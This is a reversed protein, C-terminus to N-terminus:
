DLKETMSPDWVIRLNKEKVMRCLNRSIEMYDAEKKLSNRFDFRGTVPNKLYPLGLLEELLKEGEPSAKMCRIDIMQAEQRLVARHMYGSYEKHLGQYLSTGDESYIGGTIRNHTDLLRGGVLAVDTRNEFLDPEYEIQYFGLHRSHSVTGKFGRARLFDEVARKGAEYAYRKSEPNEATSAEHCRWHYLVKPINAIPLTKAQGPRKDKGMMTSVARLVLDFDQAGDCVSRFQLEQMLQRKMVCFHCIYNNSLILDLNFKPKRHPEFYVTADANCKDEDSYILQLEEGRKSATKICLAMEYLADPTLLDDHDLLGVYDGTAYMLAQNTNLSIGGNHTLRKYIIRADEYGAIVKEVRNSQSADALILELNGYSQNLVSDVMDKLYQENTEYAPVLISFKIDFADSEKKQAALVEESVPEFVYTDAKEKEMREKAAYFARKLGHRKLYHYTKKFNSLKLIRSM